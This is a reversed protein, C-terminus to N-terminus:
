LFGIGLGIGLMVGALKARRLSLAYGYLMMACGTLLANDTLSRTRAFWCAL